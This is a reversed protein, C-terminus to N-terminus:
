LGLSCGDRGDFLGLEGGEQRGAGLVAGVGEGVVGGGGIEDEEDAAEAELGVVEEVMGEVVGVGVLAGDVGFVVVVEGEGGADIAGGLDVVAASGAAGGGEGVDGGAAAVGVL